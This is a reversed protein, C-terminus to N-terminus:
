SIEWQVEIVTYQLIINLIQKIHYIRIDWSIGNIGDGVGLNPKIGQQRWLHDRLPGWDHLTNLNRTVCQFEFVM